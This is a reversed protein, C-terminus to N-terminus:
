LTGQILRLVPPKKSKPHRRHHPNRAVLPSEVVLAQGQRVYSRLRAAMLQLHQGQASPRPGPLWPSRWEAVGSQAVRGYHQVTLSSCNTFQMSLAHVAKQQCYLKELCSNRAALLLCQM